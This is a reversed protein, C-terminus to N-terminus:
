TPGGHARAYAVSAAFLTDYDIKLGTAAVCLGDAGLARNPGRSWRAIRTLTLTREVAPDVALVMIKQRQYQWTSLGRIARWPIFEAAVRTDRIGQPALTVVPERARAFRVVAILTCFGFFVAGFSGVIRVLLDPRFDPFLPVAIALSVLTMAVGCLSLLILKAPSGAIEITRSTDLMLAKVNRGGGAPRAVQESGGRM